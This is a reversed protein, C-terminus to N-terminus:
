KQCLCDTVTGNSPIRMIRLKQSGPSLNGNLIQFVNGAKGVTVRVPMVELM